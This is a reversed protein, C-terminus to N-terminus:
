VETVPNGIPREMGSCTWIGYITRILRRTAEIYMCKHFTCPICPRASCPVYSELIGLCAPVPSRRLSTRCSRQEMMPKIHHQWFDGGISRTRQGLRSSRKKNDQRIIASFYGFVRM